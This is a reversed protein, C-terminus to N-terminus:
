NCLCVTFGLPCMGRILSSIGLRNVFMHDREESGTFLEAFVYIDPRIERAALLLYEAVHIPTSHANDIRLGHFMRACKESFVEM